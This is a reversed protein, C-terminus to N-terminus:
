PSSLWSQLFIGFITFAGATVAVVIPIYTKWRNAQEIQRDHLNMATELLISTFDSPLERRGNDDKPLVHRSVLSVSLREETNVRFFEPHQQAIEQWAAASRPSGQMTDTLGKDSRHRYGHLALVQILAMVDALRDPNTYPMKNM